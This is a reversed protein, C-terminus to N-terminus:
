RHSCGKAMSKLRHAWTWFVRSRSQVKSLRAVRNNGGYFTRRVKWYGFPRRKEHPLIKTFNLCTVEYKRLFDRAGLHTHRSKDVGFWCMVVSLIENPDPYLNNVSPPEIM